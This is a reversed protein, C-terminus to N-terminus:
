EVPPRSSDRRPLAVCLLHDHNVRFREVKELEFSTELARVLEDETRPFRGLDLQWLLKSRLRRGRLADVFLFRGRTVRAAEDLCARLAPSPLHHSVEVMVTWDSCGDIIPLSGADGLVAYCDIGKSLLGQLKMTDNDLWVYRTGPPIVGGVMGTGAGIDLVTGGVNRLENAIYRAIQRGGGHAQHFDYVRPNGLISYQLRALVPLRRDFDYSPLLAPVRGHLEFTHGCGVCCLQAFGPTLRNRCLPCAVLNLLTAVDPNIRMTLHGRSWM